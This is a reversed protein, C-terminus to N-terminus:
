KRINQKGDNGDYENYKVVKNKIGNKIKDIEDQLDKIKKELENKRVDDNDGNQLSNNEDLIYTKLEATGDLMIQKTYIKNHAVDTFVFISGDWDISTAQAEDFSSVPRGKISQQQTIQVAPQLNYNNQYMPQGYQQSEIQNLRNQAIQQQYQSGGYGNYPATYQGYM